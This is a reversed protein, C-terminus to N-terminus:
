LGLCFLTSQGRLYVRGGAIAPTSIFMQDSLSNTALLEFKEGMRVVVVDGDETAIYL